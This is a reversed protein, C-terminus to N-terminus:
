TASCQKENLSWWQGDTVCCTVREWQSSLSETPVNCVGKEKWASLTQKRYALGLNREVWLEYQHIEQLLSILLARCRPVDETCPFFCKPLDCITWAPPSLDPALTLLPEFRYRHLFLGGCPQRGYFVGFGRLIWRSQSSSHYSYNSAAASGPPPSQREFGYRVLLNGASHLIDRGWCWMQRNLLDAALKRADAGTTGPSCSTCCITSKSRSQLQATGAAVYAANTTANSTSPTNITAM